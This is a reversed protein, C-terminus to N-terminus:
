VFLATSFGWVEAMRWGNEAAFRTIADSTGDTSGDDVIIVEFETFTQLRLSALAQLLLRLRNYTPVIVSFFPM